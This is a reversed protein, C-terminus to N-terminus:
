CFEIMFCSIIISFNFWTIGNRFLTLVNSDCQENLNPRMLAIYSVELNKQTRDSKPASCIVSWTFVHNINQDLHKSPESKGSPHNHESYRVEVNRKTEGVYTSECSCIGKYIKCAHHLDKDKLPFLYKSNQNQSKWNLKKMLSITFNIWFAKQVEKMQKVSHYKYFYFKIRFKLYSLHFLQKM